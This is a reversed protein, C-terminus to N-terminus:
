LPAELLCQGDPEVAANEVWCGGPHRRTMPPIFAAKSSNADGHKIGPELSKGGGGMQSQRWRAARLARSNFCRKESLDLKPKVCMTM